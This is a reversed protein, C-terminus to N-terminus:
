LRSIVAYRYSMELWALVFDGIAVMKPADDFYPDNVYIHDEDYGVVVVSHYADLGHWYPLERTRVLVIVPQDNDLFAKLRELTGEDYEVDVDWRALQTIRRAPTGFPGIELLRLLDAYTVSRDIYALVMSACAALCDATQSMKHLPVNLLHGLM